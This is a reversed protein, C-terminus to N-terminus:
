LLLGQGKLHNVLDDGSLAKTKSISTIGFKKELM